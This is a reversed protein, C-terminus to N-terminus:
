DGSHGGDDVQVRQAAISGDSQKVGKVEVRMGVKLDAIGKVGVFTTTNSVTITVTGHEGKVTFSTAGVTVM